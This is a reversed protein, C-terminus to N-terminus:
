ARLEYYNDVDFEIEDELAQYLVDLDMPFSRTRRFSHSPLGFTFGPQRAKILDATHVGGVEMAVFSAADRGIKPSILMHFAQIGSSPGALLTRCADAFSHGSWDVLLILPVANIREITLRQTEAGPESLMGVTIILVGPFPLPDPDLMGLALVAYRTLLHRMCSHRTLKEALTHASLDSQLLGCNHVTKCFKVDARDKLESCGTQLTELLMSRGETNETDTILVSYLDILCPPLIGMGKTAVTRRYRAKVSRYDRKLMEHAADRALKFEKLKLYAAALNSYYVASADNDAAIAARYSEVAQEYQGGHFFAGALAEEFSQHSLHLVCHHYFIGIRTADCREEGASYM